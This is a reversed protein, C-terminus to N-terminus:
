LASKVPFDRLLAPTVSYPSRTRAISRPIGLRRQDACASARLGLFSATEAFSNLPVGVAPIGRFLVESHCSGAATRQDCPALNATTHDDFHAPFHQNRGFEARIPTPINCSNIRPRQFFGGSVPRKGFRSRQYHYCKIVIGPPPGDAEFFHARPLSRASCDQDAPNKALNAPWNKPLRPDM